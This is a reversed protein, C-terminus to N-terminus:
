VRVFGSSPGPRDVSLQGISFAHQARTQLVGLCVEKTSGSALCTLIPWGPEIVEGVAPIDASHITMSELDYDPVVVTSSAYLVGKAVFPATPLARAGLVADPDFAARHLQMALCGTALELVEVSAPYRPNVEVVWPRGEHLIFDVGFVGLLGCCEGLARGIRLLDGRLPSSLEIPGINGAYRFPPANLWETGILQETVGLVELDGRARVYVASMSTGAMFQQCYHRPSRLTSPAAEAQDVFAIGQGASGSFPKRLWRCYAPLEAGAARVEPVPLGEERLIREVNFPSRCAVLADPGNGWLPRIDAMRRILNPHNELGGTYMWPGPPADKLIEAFLQPYQGVPCRVADPVMARLDADAFLDACWPVLGARRASAAAARASAGVITLRSM